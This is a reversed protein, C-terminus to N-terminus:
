DAGAVLTRLGDELPAPAGLYRRARDANLVSREVDGPRPPRFEVSVERSLANMVASALSRTTTGVGTGVNLCPEAIAGRVALANARAVDAVHVYDRVCGDDGAERRAHVFLPRAARVAAVFIAVVGAEGDPDQRPGYVNAYRLTHAAFGHERAYVALLQEFALKHIAYPSKPRAPADEAAAMGEAVEGYVGGGTGAFVVRSVACGREVCADLLNLGAIVNVRADRIPDRMSRAVSAQAAQHSVAEPRFESVVRFTAARDELDVEYLRVGSPVNARKGTSLDDLVALEYGERLLEDVVHSGVFGAGGTVLVRV